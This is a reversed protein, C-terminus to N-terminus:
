KFNNLANVIDHTQLGPKYLEKLLRESKNAFKGSTYKQISSENTLRTRWM